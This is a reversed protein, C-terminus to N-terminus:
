CLKWAGIILKVPFLETFSQAKLVEHLTLPNHYLPTHPFSQVRSPLRHIGHDGFDLPVNHLLNADGQLIMPFADSRDICISGSPYRLSAEWWSPCQGLPQDIALTSAAISFRTGANCPSVPKVTQEFPSLYVSAHRSDSIRRLLAVPPPVFVEVYSRAADSLPPPQTLVSWTIARGWLRVEHGRTTHVRVAKWSQRDSVVNQRALLWFLATKLPALDRATMM